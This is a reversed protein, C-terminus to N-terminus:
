RISSDFNPNERAAGTAPPMQTRHGYLHEVSGSLRPRSAERPRADEAVAQEISGAACGQRQEPEGGRNAERYDRQREVLAPWQDGSARDGTEFGLLRNAVGGDRRRSLAARCQM